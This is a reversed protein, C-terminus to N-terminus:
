SHCISAVQNPNCFFSKLATEIRNELIKQEKAIWDTFFRAKMVLWLVEIPNLDPSYPPLYKVKIHHWNLKRAKHWTANDLILIIKRGETEKAFEDLFIQFMDSNMNSVILASFEGNKPNVAGVVNSRIHKGSYPVTGREGKKMWRRRPRPDGLIGTEDGFWIEQENM